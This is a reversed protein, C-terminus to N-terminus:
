KMTVKDDKKETKKEDKKGNQDAKKATDKEKNEKKEATKTENGAKGEKHGDCALVVPTAIAFSLAAAIITALKKMTAPLM